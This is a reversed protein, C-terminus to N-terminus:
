ERNKLATEMKIHDIQKIHILNVLLYSVFGTLVIIAFLHLPITTELYGNVQIFAIIFASQLGINILPLSFLLSAAVSITTARLYLKKIEKERYGMVKLFSIHYANKDIVIKTLTYLVVLYIVAAAGLCISTMEAFTETAQEAIKSIDEPTIVLALHSEPITLPTDSAYGDVTTEDRNLMTNFQSLTMFASLVGPSNKIGTVTLEYIDGTRVDTFTVLDGIRIGTKKCLSDSLVVENAAMGATDLEWFSTNEKIGYFTIELNRDAAPYYMELPKLAFGESGDGSIEYPSKLLYQYESVASEKMSSAYNELIPQMCLGFLLIFSAFMLGFFLIIFSGTNQLIIRLRFRGLFSIDPLQISKKQKTRKLDRRLFKLPSLSLKYNLLILNIVAIVAAPFFTTMLLAELNFQLIMPALSYNSYYLRTFMQIGLTYSLINGTIAGLLTVALPLTLYHRILERKRYGSAFLTGIVASEAEITSSIIVTFIFAMIVLIIYFFIMMMPVDKGMDNHFFSISQNDAATLFATLPVQLEILHTKINEVYVEKESNNLNRDTYRYAYNYVVKEQPLAAFNEDTTLATGFSFSDMLLDNNSLFLSSYDSLSIIGCITFVMSDIQITDGLALNHNQAFLREIAMDDQKQPLIGEWVAPLNIETRNKYIRLTQGSLIEADLYVNEAIILGLEEVDELLAQSLLEAAAFQGDEVKNEIQDKEYTIKASNASVLFGSIIMIMVVFIIFIASYRGANGMLERKFRKHLPNRM